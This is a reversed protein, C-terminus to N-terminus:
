DLIRFKNIISFLFVHLFPTIFLKKKYIMNGTNLWCYLWRTNSFQVKHMVLPYQGLFLLTFQHHNNSQHQYSIPRFNLVKLLLRGPQNNGFVLMHGVSTLVYSVVIAPICHLLM